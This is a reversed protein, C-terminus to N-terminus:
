SVALGSRSPSDDGQLGTRDRRCQGPCDGVPDGGASSYGSRRLAEPPSQVSARKWVEAIRDHEGIRRRIQGTGRRHRGPRSSRGACIADCSRYNMCRQGSLRRSGSACWTGLSWARTCRARRATRAPMEARSRSTRCVSKIPAPTCTPATAAMDKPKQCLWFGQGNYLTSSLM